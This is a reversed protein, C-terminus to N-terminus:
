CLWAIQTYLTYQRHTAILPRKPGLLIQAGFLQNPQNAHGSLAMFAGRVSVIRKINNIGGSLM